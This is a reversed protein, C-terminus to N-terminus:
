CLRYWLQHDAHRLHSSNCLGVISTPYPSLIMANTIAYADGLKLSLKLLKFLTDKRMLAFLQYVQAGNANTM